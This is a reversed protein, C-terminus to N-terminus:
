RIPLSAIVEYSDILALGTHYGPDLDPTAPIVDMPKGDTDITQLAIKCASPRYYNKDFAKFCKDFWLLSWQSWQPNDLLKETLAIARLAEPLSWWPLSPHLVELAEADVKKAIGGVEHYGAELNARLLKEMIRAKEVDIGTTAQAQAWLGVLEVSHGADIVIRGEEDRAPQDNADIWEVLLDEPLTSWRKDKNWYLTLVTEILEERWLLAEQDEELKLLLTVAGLCIMRSGFRRLEASAEKYQSAHFSQQDSYLNDTLVARIVDKLYTKAERAKAEDGFSHYYAYLGRACFLDSMTFATSAPQAEGGVYFYIHGQNREREAMLRDAVSKGLAIVPELDFDKLEPIRKFFAVHAAITEIGRGQIWSYIHNSDRIGSIDFYDKGTIADLKLDIWGYDPRMKQREIILTMTDVIIERMTTLYYDRKAKTMKEESLMLSKNM